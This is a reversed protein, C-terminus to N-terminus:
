MNKVFYIFLLETTASIPSWPWLLCPGFLPGSQQAGKAPFSWPGRRVCHPRPRPRSGYLTTDEDIWGNLWLLCPGFVPPQAGKLPFSCGWRVCRRRPWPKDGYWTANQNMWGNPWLLCPGFNPPPPQAKKRPLQTGVTCLTSQMQWTAGLRWHASIHPCM